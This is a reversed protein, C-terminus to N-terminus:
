EQKIFVRVENQSPPMTPKQAWFTVQFLWHKKIVLNALKTVWVRPFTISNDKFKHFGSSSSSLLTLGAYQVKWIASKFSSQPSTPWIWHSSIRFSSLARSPHSARQFSFSFDSLISGHFFFQLFRFLGVHIYAFSELVPFVFLSIHLFHFSPLQIGLFVYGFFM